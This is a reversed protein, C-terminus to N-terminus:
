GNPSKNNLLTDVIALVERINETEGAQGIRGALHNVQRVIERIQPGPQSSRPKNSGALPQGAIWAEAWALVVRATEDNLNGTLESDEHLQEIEKRVNQDM